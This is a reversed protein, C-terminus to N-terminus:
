DLGADYAGMQMKEPNRMAGRQDTGFAEEGAWEVFVKGLNILPSSVPNFSRAVEIVAQKTAYGNVPTIQSISWEYAGDDTLNGHVANPYATDFPSMTIGTVRQYVNYGKSFAERNSGNLNFSPASPNESILLNNIFKTDDGMQTECRVAGHTDNENGSITSNVLLFSGGGNLAAGTGMNKILTTNNMCIHGESMQIGNGWSGSHSNGTLLCNNMFTIATKSNCRVAGGRGAATNNLLKVRNLRAQGSLIFLAAGGQKLASTVASKCDRVVCDILEVSTDQVSGNVYIGSGCENSGAVAESAYGYQFIIGDFAVVGKKIVLLGCDGADAQKNGNVDGSIVTAYANIDRQTVDTGESFQSYGGKVAKINKRIIVGLGSEESMVYKGQSMYITSKSLDVSGNLLQRFSAVDMAQEWCSGDMDGEGFQTVFYSELGKQMIVEEDLDDEYDTMMPPDIMDYTEKCAQSLLLLFALLGWKSLTFLNNKM